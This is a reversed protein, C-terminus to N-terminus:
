SAAPVDVPASPAASEVPAAPAPAPADAAAENQIRAVFADAGTFDVGVAAPQSKLENLLAVFANTEATVDADLHAQDSAVTM